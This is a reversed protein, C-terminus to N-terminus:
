REWRNIAGREYGGIWFKGQHNSRMDTRRAAVADGEIPQGAFAAGEAKWDSLDGREFDLNLLEGDASIPLEGVSEEDGAQVVLQIASASRDKDQSDGTRQPALPRPSNQACCQFVLCM